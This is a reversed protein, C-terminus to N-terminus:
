IKENWTLNLIGFRATVRATAYDVGATSMVLRIQATLGDDFSM